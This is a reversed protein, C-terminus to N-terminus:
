STSQCSTRTSNEFSSAGPRDSGVLIGGNRLTGRLLSRYQRGEPKEADGVSRRLHAHWRNEPLARPVDSSQPQIETRRTGRAPPGTERDSDRAIRLGHRRWGCATAPHCPGPGRNGRRQSGLRQQRHRFLPAAPSPKVALGIFRTRRWLPKAKSTRTSIPQSAAFRVTRAACESRPPWSPAAICMGALSTTAFGHRVGSFTPFNM